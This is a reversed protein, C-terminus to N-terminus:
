PHHTIKTLIQSLVLGFLVFGTFVMYGPQLSTYNTTISTLTENQINLGTLQNEVLGNFGIYTMLIAVVMVDAMSWKSSKFAFYEIVKSKMWRKTGLLYICSSLLKCVPFLISFCLILIGVILADYKGTKILLVVVDLISKSQFFLVQNKFTITDGMLHFNLSQIRADIEIMTTSIGVLLLIFAALASLIFATSHVSPNKRFLWWLGLILLICALMGFAYNYTTQRIFSLRAGTVKEFDEKTLVQYQHLISDILSQELLRSSDYTGEGLQDLKSKALHKLRTKSSPKKIEDMIKKSFVPVMKQVDEKNVLANFAFKRLKGRVTKQPKEVYAFIRDIMSHLIEQIEQNLDQEQEPSFEFNQVRQDAIAIIKDRWESVSLLGFMINNVTSYDKKINEQQTSLTHVKYGCFGTLALLLSISVFLISM